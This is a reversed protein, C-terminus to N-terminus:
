RYLERAIILKQIESTGEYIETVKADRYYREVRYDRRYGYGGSDAGCRPDREGGRRFCLAQRYLGGPHLTGGTRKPPPGLVLGRAAAIRTHMEALKFSVGQFERLRQGFQFREDAYRRALEFAARAM